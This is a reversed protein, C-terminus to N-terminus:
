RLSWPLTASAFEHSAISVHADVFNPDLKLVETHIDKAKGGPGIAKWAQKTIAVFEAARNEYYMGSFYLAPVNKKDKELSKDCIERLKENSQHFREQAKRVEPLNLKGTKEESFPTPTAYDDLVLNGTKSLLDNLYVTALMGYGAPDDPDQRIMRQCIAEAGEYDLRYLSDQGQRLLQAADEEKQRGLCPLLGVIGACFFVLIKRLM